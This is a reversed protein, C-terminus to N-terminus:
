MGLFERLAALPRRLAWYILPVRGGTVRVTGKLGVRHNSAGDLSARVRYAYHGDPRRFAEYSIYKIKGSVPSLPSASLYLRVPSHDPLVIADSVPLWAEIEKDSLEALRMIRQGATVSRGAWESADDVFVVGDRPALVKSRELQQRLFEEELRKEEANGKASSLAGRAKPDNFAQQGFQRQEAEATLRAEMAVDLKSSLQVDDYAFLPLNAKVADNTQVFIRKIVGDFPARIAVPNAPVLEGPTLVSIRVPVLLIAIVAASWLVPKKVIGLPAALLARFSLAFGRSKSTARYVCFWTQVWEHFLRLELERWPLDRAVFLGGANEKGEAFPIWLANAPLWEGWSKQLDQPLDSTTVVRAKEASLHEVVRSLWQVYPANAEVEMLGSLAAIGERKQWLAAQQYPALMHSDNVAIFRLATLSEASRARRILEIMVELPSAARINKTGAAVQVTPIDTPLTSAM